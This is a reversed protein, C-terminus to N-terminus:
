TAITANESFDAVVKDPFNYGINLKILPKKTNAEFKITDINDALVDDIYVLTGTTTGDSEIRIKKM